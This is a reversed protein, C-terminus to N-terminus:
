DSGCIAGEQSLASNGDLSRLRGAIKDGLRDLAVERNIELSGGESVRCTDDCRPAPDPCSAATGACLRYRGFLRVSTGSGESLENKTGGFVKLTIPARLPAGNANALIARRVSEPSLPEQGCSGVVQVEIGGGSSRHAIFGAPVPGATGAPREAASQAEPRPTAGAPAADLMALRTRALSAYLGGPFAQLYAACPATERGGHCADWAEQEIMANPREAVAAATAGPFLYFDGRMEEFLAPRQEHDARKAAVEVEDRVRRLAALVELGPTRIAQVLAYTFLGNGATVNPVEDLATQGRSASLIIASGEAPEVPALGRSEGIARTRGPKPPFPNNRCADIVLLSFRANKLEEQVDYLNVGDRVVQEPNQDEIDVPLLMPNSEIQVGHGAFYFVVEDRATARQKLQDIASWMATRSLNTRVGGVVTFGADTLTKAFLRADNGANRLPAVHQYGDNGIVLALREARASGLALMGVLALM